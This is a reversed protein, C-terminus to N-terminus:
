EADSVEADIARSQLRAAIREALEATEPKHTHEISGKVEKRDVLMGLYKALLTNAQIRSEVKFKYRPGHQTMTVQIESLAKGLGPPLKAWDVNGEPTLPPPSLLSLDAEAINIVAQLVDSVEVDVHREIAKKRREIEARIYDRKLLRSAAIHATNPAYGAKTAARQGVGCELYYRVFDFQKQTLPRQSRGSDNSSNL